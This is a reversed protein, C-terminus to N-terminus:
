IRIARIKSVQSMRDGFSEQLRIEIYTKGIKTATASSATAASLNAESLSKHVPRLLDHGLLLGNLGASSQNILPGNAGGLSGTTSRNISPIGNQHGSSTGGHTADSREGSISKNEPLSSHFVICRTELVTPGYHVMCGNYQNLIERKDAEADNGPQAVAVCVLGFVRRHIQQPTADQKACSHRIQYRFSIERPTNEFCLQRYRTVQDMVTQWQQPPFSGKGSQIVHVVILIGSNDEISCKFDPHNM